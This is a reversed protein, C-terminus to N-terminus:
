TPHKKKKRISDNSQGREGFRVDAVRVKTPSIIMTPALTAIEPTVRDLSVDKSFSSSISVPYKLMISAVTSRNPSSLFPTWCCVLM